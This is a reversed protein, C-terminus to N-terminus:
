RPVRRFAVSGKVVDGNTLPRDESSAHRRFFREAGPNCYDAVLLRVKDGDVWKYMKGSGSLGGIGGSGSVQEEGKGLIDEVEAMTMGTKIRDYNEKNVPPKGCGPVTLILLGTALLVCLVTRKLMDM